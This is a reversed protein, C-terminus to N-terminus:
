SYSQPGRIERDMKMRKASQMESISSVRQQLSMDHQYICNAGHRCGKSSNFYICPKMMKHKADRPKSNDVEQDIIGSHHIPIPHTSFPPQPQPQPEGQREGGHQHILNKYYNLDKMQSGSGSGSGSQLSLPPISQQHTMPGTGNTYPYVLGNSMMMPSSSSGTEMNNYQPPPPPPPAPTDMRYMPAGSSLPKPISQPGQHRVLQELITPNSLIKVLLDHDIQENSKAVATLAAKLADAQGCSAVGAALTGGQAVLPYSKTTASSCAISDPSPDPQDEEEIPTIPISPLTQDDQGACVIDPATAPNPPIASERPYYAELVRLERESQVEVEESEEGIVVQWEVGLIFKPPPRWKVVPIQALRDKLQNAPNFGEFGPPLNDDAVVGNVPLGSINKKVQLHDQAGGGVQSPSDESLFLRVQCLNGDSAWSVRKSKQSGQM